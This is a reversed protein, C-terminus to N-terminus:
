VNCVRILGHSGCDLSSIEIKVQSLSSDVDIAPAVPAPAVKDVRDLAGDLLVWGSGGIVM